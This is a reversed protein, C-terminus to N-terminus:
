NETATKIIYEMVASQDVIPTDTITILGAREAADYPFHDVAIHEMLKDRNPIFSHESVIYNVDEGNKYPFVWAVSTLDTKKSLDVGCYVDMGTLDIPLKKVECAKWKAMDMYGNKKAQVWVDGMKTLWATMKEPIQCAIEYEQRIEELNDLLTSGKKILKKRIQREEEDSVSQAAFIADASTLAATAQVEKNKEATGTKLYDAFNEGSSVRGASKGRALENTKRIDDVKFM